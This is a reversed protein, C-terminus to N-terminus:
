CWLQPFHVSLLVMQISVRVDPFATNKTCWSLIHQKVGSGSHTLHFAAITQLQRTVHLGVSIDTLIMKLTSALKVGRFISIPKIPLAFTPLYNPYFHSFFTPFPPLDVPCVVCKKWALLCYQNVAATRLPATGGILPKKMCSKCVVKAFVQMGERMSKTLGRRRLQKNKQLPPVILGLWAVIGYYGTKLTSSWLM